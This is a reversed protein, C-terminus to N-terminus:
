GTIAVIMYKQVGNSAAIYEQVAEEALAETAFRDATRGDVSGASFYSGDEKKFLGLTYATKFQGNKEMDYAVNFFVMYYVPYDIEVGNGFRLTGKGEFEDQEILNNEHIQQMPEAYEMETFEKQCEERTGTFLFHALNGRHDQEWINYQALQTIAGPISSLKVMNNEGYKGLQRRSQYIM